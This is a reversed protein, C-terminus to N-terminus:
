DEEGPVYEVGIAECYEKKKEPTNCYCLYYMDEIAYNFLETFSDFAYEDDEMDCGGELTLLTFGDLAHYLGTKSSYVYLDDQCEGVVLCGNLEPRARLYHANREALPWSMCGPATPVPETSYFCAGNWDYGNSQRLFDAYDEPIPSAYREAARVKEATERDAAEIMEDTAGRREHDRLFTKELLYQMRREELVSAEEDTLEENDGYCSEYLDGVECNFLEAFDDYGGDEDILTLEDLVFYKESESSY